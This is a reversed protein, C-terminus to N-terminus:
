ASGRAEYRGLKSSSSVTVRDGTLGIPTFPTPSAPQMAEVAATAFATLSASPGSPIVWRSMGNVAWVTHRAMCDAFPPWAHDRRREAVGPRGAQGVRDRGDAPPAFLADPPV